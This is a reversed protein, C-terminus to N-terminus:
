KNRVADIKATLEEKLQLDAAQKALIDALKKGSALNIKAKYKSLRNRVNGLEKQLEIDPINEVEVQKVEKEIFVDQPIWNLVSEDPIVKTNLWDLKVQYLYDVIKTCQDVSEILQKRKFKQEETNRSGVLVIDKHAIARLNYYKKQRAIIKALLDKDKGAILQNLQDTADIIPDDTKIVKVAKTEMDIKKTITTCIRQDTHDSVIFLQYTLHSHREENEGRNLNKLMAKNNYCEELLALGKQYNRDTFFWDNVLDITEKDIIM